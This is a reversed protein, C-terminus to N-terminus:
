TAIGNGNATAPLPPLDSPDKLGFHELFKLTTGLLVPRGPGPARGVEELLGRGILSAIAGDSNVGRIAEVGARTVPQKYAVIALSELAAGSIRQRSEVGLYREVYPGAEPASVLQVLGGTRQLRLGSESHRDELAALADEIEDRPRRLAKALSGVDVPEDAVFLISEIVRWLLERSLSPLRKM